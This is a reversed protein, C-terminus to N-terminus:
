VELNSAMIEATIGLGSKSSLWRTTTEKELVKWLGWETRFWCISLIKTSNNAWNVLHRLKFLSMNMKQTLLAKRTRGIHKVMWYLPSNTAEKAIIQLKMKASIGTMKLMWPIPELYSRTIDTQEPCELMLWHHKHMSTKLKMNTM